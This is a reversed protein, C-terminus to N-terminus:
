RKYAKTRLASDIRRIKGIPSHLSRLVLQALRKAAAHGLLVAKQQANM